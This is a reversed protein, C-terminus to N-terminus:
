KSIKIDGWVSLTSGIIIVVAIIGKISKAFGIAKALDEKAKVLNGVATVTADALISSNALVITADTKGFSLSHGVTGSSTCIGFPNKKPEIELFIKKSLRSEGAYIGIRRKNRTKIFIDGGNEVIVEKSIKLLDMGLYQAIAGAVSAMPGVNAIRAFKIMDKVIDAVKRVDKKIKIPKLSSLFYKDKIIYDEIQKRYYFIREKIYESDIPRDTSIFVDTQKDILHARILDKSNVWDRYFREQFKNSKL